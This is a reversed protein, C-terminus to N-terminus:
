AAHPAGRGHFCLRCKPDLHWGHSTCFREGHARRRAAEEVSCGARAALKRLERIRARTSMLDRVQPDHTHHAPRM